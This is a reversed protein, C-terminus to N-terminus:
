LGLLRRHITTAAQAAQATATAIQNLGQTVDGVAFLGPITTEQRADTQLAGAAHAAGMGVALESRVCAGLASYLTDFALRTGDAITVAAIRSGMLEIGTVPEAVVKIGADTLTRRQEDTFDAPNGLTLLTIRESWTRLFLAEGLAAAGFGIIGINQGSAEYGDCIPCHRILGRHIADPLAPLAPELDVVGTAMIATAATVAHLCGDAAMIEAQFGAALRSVRGPRLVAGYRSAHRRMRDLLEAGGMGDPFGALNHSTPILAARSAKGDVVVVRRRYRALYLAATLGAPGGGIILCDLRDMM